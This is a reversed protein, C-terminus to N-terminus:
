AFSRSVQFLSDVTFGNTEVRWKVSACFNSICSSMLKNIFSYLWLGSSGKARTSGHRNYFVFILLIYFDGKFDLAFMSM